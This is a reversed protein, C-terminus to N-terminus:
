RSKAASKVEIGMVHLQGALMEWSHEPSDLWLVEGPRLTIIVPEEGRDTLKLRALSLSVILIPDHSHMPSSKGPASLNEIVRVHENEFVVVHSEPDNLVADPARDAAHVSAAVLLAATVPLLHIRM